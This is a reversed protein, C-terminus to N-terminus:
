RLKTGGKVRALAELAAEVVPDNVGLVADLTPTVEVDPAIGRGDYLTMDPRFSAMSRNELM